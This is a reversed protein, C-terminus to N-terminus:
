KPAKKSISIVYRLRTSVIVLICMIIFTGLLTGAVILSRQPRSKTQPVIAEDLVYMTPTDKFEDLVAQELMPKLFVKVKTLAEFEAYYQAYRVGISMADRLAFDGAFGSKNEAEFLKTRYQQLAMKQTVAAPDQEGLSNKLMEYQIEAKMVESKMDALASSIAGAQDLPSFVLTSGSLKKLSDGIMRLQKENNELREELYKRNTSAEQRQLRLSVDNAIGVCSNAMIAAKKPDRSTVSINYNGESTLEFELNEKLIDRVAKLNSDPVNYDKALDFKKILSDKLSRSELVALFTYSESKSGGLKSLGFDKLASTVNGLMGGLAGGPNNPPVVSVTAKYWSPMNWAIAASVAGSIIVILIILYKNRWLLLWVTLGDLPPLPHPLSSEKEQSTNSSM